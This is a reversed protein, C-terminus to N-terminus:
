LLQCGIEIGCPSLRPELPHASAFHPTRAALAYKLKFSDFIGAVDILLLLGVSFMEVVM